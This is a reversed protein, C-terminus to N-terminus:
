DMLFKPLNNKTVKIFKAMVAELVFSIILYQLPWPFHTWCTPGVDDLMSSLFQQIRKRVINSSTPGVNEEHFINSSLKLGEDLM